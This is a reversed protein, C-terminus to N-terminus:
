WGYPYKEPLSPFKDGGRPKKPLSPYKGRCPKKGQSPKTLKNMEQVELIKIKM